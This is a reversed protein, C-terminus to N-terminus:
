EMTPPRLPRVPLFGGEELWLDEIPPLAPHQELPPPGAVCADRAHFEAGKDIKAKEVVLSGTAVGEGKLEFESEPAYVSAHFGAHGGAKVHGKDAIMIALRAVDAGVLSGYKFEVRGKEMHIRVDGALELVAGKRVRVSRLFYDGAPLVLRDDKRVELKLGDLAVDGNETLPIRHNDNHHRFAEVYDSIDEPEVGASEELIAGTVVSGKKLKVDRAVLDGEITAHDHLKVKGNSLVRVPGDDLGRIASHKKVDLKEEVFVPADLPCFVDTTPVAFAVPALLLGAASATGVLRGFRGRSIRPSVLPM